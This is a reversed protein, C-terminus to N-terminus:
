EAKDLNGAGEYIEGLSTLAQSSDPAFQLIAQYQQEAQDVQGASMYTEALLLRASTEKPHARLHDSLIQIAQTLNGAAISSRAQAVESRPQVKQNTDPQQASIWGISGLVCFLAVLHSLKKLAVISRVRRRIASGVERRMVM